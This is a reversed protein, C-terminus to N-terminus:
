GSVINQPRVILLDAFDKPLDLLQFSCYSMTSLAPALSGFPAARLTEAWSKGRELLPPAIFKSSLPPLSLSECLINFEELLSADDAYVPLSRPAERPHFAIEWLLRM